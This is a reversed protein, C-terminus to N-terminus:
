RGRGRLSVQNSEYRDPARRNRTSRRIVGDEVNMNGDVDQDETVSGPVEVVDGGSNPEQEVIAPNNAPANNMMVYRPVFPEIKRLFRRNRLSVRGSGDMKVTYQQKGLSEVVIGSRDWRLPDKGRQNQVQVVAGVPLPPLPRSHHELDKFEEM